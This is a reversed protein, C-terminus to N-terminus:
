PERASSNDSPFVYLHELEEEVHILDIGEPLIEEVAMVEGVFNSHEKLEDENSSYEQFDQSMNEEADEDMRAVRVIVPTGGLTIREDDSYEALDKQSAQRRKRFSSSRQPVHIKLHINLYDENSFKAPCLTCAFPRYDAHIRMHGELFDAHAFRKCCLNCQHGRGENHTKLHNSLHGSQTFKKTCFPCNYPKEGDHLRLHNVLHGSQTFSKGCHGCQYPRIGLHLREHNRLHGSQTFRKKCYPCEYPRTNTHSNIHSVLHGSQSFAKGCMECVFPREGTHLRMHNRLHGMQQFRKHCIQCEHSGLNGATRPKRRRAKTSAGQRPLPTPAKETKLERQPTSRCKKRADKAHVIRMHEKLENATKFVAECFICKTSEVPIAVIGEIAIATKEALLPLIVAEPDTSKMSPMSRIAYPLPSTHMDEMLGNVARQLSESSSKEGSNSTQQDLSFDELSELKVAGAEDTTEILLKTNGADCEARTRTAFVKEEFPEQYLSDEDDSGPLRLQERHPKSDAAVHKEKPSKEQELAVLQLVDADTAFFLTQQALPGVGRRSFHHVAWLPAGFLRLAHALRFHDSAKFM